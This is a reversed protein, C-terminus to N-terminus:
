ERQAYADKFNLDDTPWYDLIEDAVEAKAEFDMLKSKYVLVTYKSYSNLGDDIAM